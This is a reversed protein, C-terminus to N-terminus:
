PLQNMGDKMCRELGWWHWPRGGRPWFWPARFDWMSPVALQPSWARPWLVLRPLFSWLLPLRTRVCTSRSHPYKWLTTDLGGHPSRPAGAVTWDEAPPACSMSGSNLPSGSCSSSKLCPLSWFLLTILSLFCMMHSLPTLEGLLLLFFNVDRFFTNRIVFYWFGHPLLQYSTQTVNILKGIRPLM